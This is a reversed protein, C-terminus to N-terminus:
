RKTVKPIDCEPTNNALSILKHPDYPTPYFKEEIRKQPCHSFATGVHMVSELRKCEKALDIIEKIGQVNIAVATNLVEDFRVSAAM